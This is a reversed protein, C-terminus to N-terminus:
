KKPVLTAMAKASRATKVAEKGVEVDVRIARANTVSPGVEIRSGIGFDAAQSISVFLVPQRVLYNQCLDIWRGRSVKQYGQLVTSGVGIPDKADTMVEVTISLSPTEEHSVSDVFARQRPDSKVVYWRCIASGPMVRSVVLVALRTEDKSSRHASFARDLKPSSDRNISMERFRKLWVGNQDVDVQSVSSLEKYYWPEKDESYEHLPITEEVVEDAIGKLVKELNAIATKRKEPNHRLAVTFRLTGKERDILEPNGIVTPEMTDVGLLPQLAEDLLKAASTAKAEQTDLKAGLSQGDVETVTIGAGKVAEYIRTRRVVVSLRVRILGQQPESSVITIKEVFGSSHSIVVDRILKDNEVQVQADVFAGLTQQVANRVASDTADQETAGLGEVVVTTLVGPEDAAALLGGTALLMVLLLARMM